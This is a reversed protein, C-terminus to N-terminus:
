PFTPPERSMLHHEVAYPIPLDMVERPGRVLRRGIEAFWTDNAFPWPWARIGSRAGVVGGTAAALASGGIKAAQEIPAHHREPMPAALLLAARTLDWAGPSDGAGLSALAASGETVGVLDILDAVAAESAHAEPLGGVDLDALAEVVAPMTEAVGAVLDKGSQGFCAAATAAAFVGGSLISVADRHFLGGLSAVADAMGEPDRRFGVGLVVSRPGHDLSPQDTRIPSSAKAGDLWTRFGATESRYVPIEDNAGDLERLSEVVRGLDLRGHEILEYAIVVAQETHASYGLEWAGGATDGAALGLISGDGEGSVLSYLAEEDSM